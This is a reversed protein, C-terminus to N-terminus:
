LSALVKPHAKLAAVIADVQARSEARLAISVAVYKGASSARLSIDAECVEPAHCRVLELVELHFDDTALGMVKIPYDCPFELEPAQDLPCSNM